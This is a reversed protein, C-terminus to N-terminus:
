FKSTSSSLILTSSSTPFNLSHHSFFNFFGVLYKLKKGHPEDFIETGKRPDLTVRVSGGGSEFYLSVETCRIETQRKVTIGVHFKHDNSDVDVDIHDKWCRVGITSKGEWNVLAVDKASVQVFIEGVNLKQLDRSADGKDRFNKMLEEFFAITEEKKYIREGGFLGM